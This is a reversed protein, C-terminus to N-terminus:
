VFYLIICISKTPLLRKKLLFVLRRQIYYFQQFYNQSNVNQSTDYKELIVQSRTNWYLRTCIIKSDVLILVYSIHQVIKHIHVSMDWCIDTMSELWLRLMSREESWLNMININDSRHITMSLLRITNRIEGFSIM